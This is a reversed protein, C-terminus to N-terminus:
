QVLQNNNVPGLIMKRARLADSEEDTWDSIANIKLKFTSHPDSNHTLVAKLNSKFIQARKAQDVDIIKATSQRPYQQQYFRYIRDFLAPNNEIADVKNDVHSLVQDVFEQVSPAGSSWAIFLAVIPAILYKM